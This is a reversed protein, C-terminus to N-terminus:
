RFIQSSEMFKNVVDGVTKNDVLKNGQSWPAKPHKLYTKDNPYVASFHVLRVGQYRSLNTKVIYSPKYACTPLIGRLLSNNIFPLSTYNFQLRLNWGKYHGQKVHSPTWTSYLRELEQQVFANDATEGTLEGNKQRRRLTLRSILMKEEGM